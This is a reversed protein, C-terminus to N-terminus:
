WITKVLPCKQMREDATVLPIGEARATAAIIRDMPDPLTDLSFYSTAMAAELHLPLVEVGEILQRITGEITGKTRIRGHNMLSALEVVTIASIAISSSAKARRLTAEAVRSLKRPEWQAWILVHTDLLIM